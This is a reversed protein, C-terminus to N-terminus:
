ELINTEQRRKKRPITGCACRKPDSGSRPGIRCQGPSRAIGRKRGPAGTRRAAPPRGRIRHVPDVLYLARKITKSRQPPQTSTNPHKRKRNSQKSKSKMTIPPNTGDIEGKNLGGRWGEREGRLWQCGSESRACHGWWHWDRRGM